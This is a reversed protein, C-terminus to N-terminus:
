QANGIGNGGWQTFDSKQAVRSPTECLFCSMGSKLMASATAPHRGWISFGILSSENDAEWTGLTYNLGLCECCGGCKRKSPRLVGYIEM